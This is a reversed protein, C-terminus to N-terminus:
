ANNWVELVEPERPLIIFKSGEGDTLGVYVNKDDMETTVQVTSDQEMEQLKEVIQTYRRNEMAEAVPFLAEDWFDDLADNSHDVVDLKLTRGDIISKGESNIQQVLGSLKTGPEVDIKVVVENPSIELTSQNIGEYHNVINELPTQQAVQRFTFWGGFLLGGSIIVTLVVPIIRIKM